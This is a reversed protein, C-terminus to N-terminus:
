KYAMFISTVNKQADTFHLIKTKEENQYQARIDPLLICVQIYICVRVNQLFKHTM